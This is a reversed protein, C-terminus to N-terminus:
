FSQTITHCPSFKLRQFTMPPSAPNACTTFYRSDLSNLFQHSALSYKPNTYSVIIITFSKYDVKECNGSRLYLNVSKQYIFYSPV